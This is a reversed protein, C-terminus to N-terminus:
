SEFVPKWTSSDTKISINAINGWSGSSDKGYVQKVPTWTNATTKVRTIGLIPQYAVGANGGWQSAFNTYDDSQGSSYMASILANEALWSKVKACNQSNHTNALPNAQLYLAVMGAVQPLAASTGTFNCQGFSSNAYYTSTFPNTNSNSVATRVDWGATFVTVNHGANSFSAKYNKGPSIEGVAMAGVVISNATAPTAGRNYYGFGNINNFVSGTSSTGIWYNEYDPDTEAAIKHANNGAAAIFIIGAKIMNEVKTDYPSYRYPQGTTIPYQTNSPLDYISITNNAPGMGKNPDPASSPVVPGGRYSIGTMTFSFIALYFEAVVITPKNNTKSNHWSLVADLAADITSIAGPGTGSSPIKCPYITANKAWGYTRGAMISAAATGHGSVDYFNVSNPSTDLNGTWNYQVIRINGDAAQFEPHYYEIGSDMIVMDVGTGDLVYRYEDLTSVTNGYVNTDYSHRMIGWNINGGAANNYPPITFTVNADTLPGFITPPVAFLGLEELPKDVVLVRPDQRLANAEDDTLAYNCMQPHLSQENIISIQRGLLSASGYSNSEMERWFADYNVGDRLVVIYEKTEM